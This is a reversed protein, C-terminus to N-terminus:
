GRTANGERAPHGGLYWRVSFCERIIYNLKVGQSVARESHDHFFLVPMELIKVDMSVYYVSKKTLACSCGKLVRLCKENM